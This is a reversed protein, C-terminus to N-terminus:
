EGIRSTRSGRDEFGVTDAYSNGVFRNGTGEVIVKGLEFRCGIVQAFSTRIVLVQDGGEAACGMLLATDGAGIDFGTTGGRGSVTTDFVRNANPQADGASWRVGTSGETSCDVGVPACRTSTRAERAESSSAWAARGSRRSAVGTSSRTTSTEWSSGAPRATSAGTRSRLIRITTQRRVQGPDDSAFRRVDGSWLLTTAGQGTGVITIQDRTLLVPADLEFAGAEIAVTGGGDPLADIRAQLKATWGDPTASRAPAETAGSTGPSPNQAPFTSSGPRPFRPDRRRRWAALPVAASAGAILFERRNIPALTRGRRHRELCCLM